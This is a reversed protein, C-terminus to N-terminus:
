KNCEKEVGNEYYVNYNEREFYSEFYISSRRVAIITTYTTKPVLIVYDEGLQISLEKCVMNLKEDDMGGWGIFQVDHISENRTVAGSGNDANKFLIYSYDKVTEIDIGKRWHTKALNKPGYCCSCMGRNYTYHAFDIDCKERLERLNLEGYTKM